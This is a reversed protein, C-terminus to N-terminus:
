NTTLEGARLMRFYVAIVQRDPMARVKDVWTKAGRYKPARCLIDRMAPVSMNEGGIIEFGTILVMVM